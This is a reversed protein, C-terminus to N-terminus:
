KQQKPHAYMRMRNRRVEFLTIWGGSIMAGSSPPRSGNNDENKVLLLGRVRSGDGSRDEVHTEIIEVTANLGLRTVLSSNSAISITVTLADQIIQYTGLPVPMGFMQGGNDAKIRGSGGGNTGDDFSVHNTRPPVFLTVHGGSAILGRVVGEEMRTSVVEMCSGPVSTGKVKSDLRGGETIVCGPEDAVVVYAGLPVPSAGANLLSIWGSTFKVLKNVDENDQSQPVIVRARVVRDGTVQTQVVEVCRGRHLKSLVASDREPTELLPLGDGFNIRYVGLPVPETWPGSNEDTAVKAILGKENDESGENEVLETANDKKEKSNDTAWQLSIWGEYKKVVKRLLASEEEETSTKNNRKSKFRSPTQKKLLMIRSSATQKKLLMGKLPRKNKSGQTSDEEEEEEEEMEWCIRGRVREGHVRTELIDVYSEPPIILDEEVVTDVRRTMIKIPVSRRHIQTTVRLGPSSCIVKHVGLPVNWGNYQMPESSGSPISPSASVATSLSFTDHSSNNSPTSGISSGDTNASSLASSM